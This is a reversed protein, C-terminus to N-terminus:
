APIRNHKLWSVPKGQGQAREMWEKIANDQAAKAPDKHDARFTDQWDSLCGALADLEDEHELCGRDRTIRSVQHQFAPNAAVASPIVIRHANLVPEIGDIIRLEKQGSSRVGNVHCAFGDPRDSREGKGCRLRQVHIQLLAVYADGGFNEEVNIQTCNTDYAIKALTAMNADTAGGTLGGLRRVHYFGNLHSVVAFGTKDAGKGAPDIRMRTGTFPAHENPVHASRYFVDTGIGHSKIDQCATSADNHSKGWQLFLPATPGDSDYVIFNELKLPYQDADGLTRVLQNERLWESRNMRRLAVDAPTFRHSLFCEGPKIEGTDIMGQLTPHLTFTHEDPMPACLPFAFVTVGLEEELRRAYTEEHKPTLTHLIEMPDRCEGAEISMSPYLWNTADSLLTWLRERSEFTISNAKTECDDFIVTHGRNSELQGSIGLVSVSPQRDAGGPGIDFATVSDRQGKRPLLHNLFWVSGIWGRILTSTRNISQQGKSIIVIKRRHDRYLRWCAVAASELYTKGFGRTALAGRITGYTPDTIYRIFAFEVATLPAKGVLSGDETYRQSGIEYWLEQTFFTVDEDLRKLYAALVAPDEPQRV